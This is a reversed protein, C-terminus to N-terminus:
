GPSSGIWGTFIDYVINCVIDSVIDSIIDTYLIYPVIDYVIDSIIDTYQHIYGVEIAEHFSIGPPSPGPRPIPLAELAKNIEEQTMDNYEHLNQLFRAYPGLNTTSTPPIHPDQDEYDRMEDSDMERDGNVDDDDYAPDNDQDM